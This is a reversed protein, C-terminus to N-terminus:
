VEGKRGERVGGGRVGELERVGGGRERNESRGREEWERM